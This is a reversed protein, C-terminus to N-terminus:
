SEPLNAKLFEITRAIIWRSRSDDDLVDFAHHGQPYNTFDLPVNSVLTKRIFLDITKNLKPRDLGAHAIFVPVSDFSHRSLHSALSSKQM